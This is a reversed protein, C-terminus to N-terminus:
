RCGSTAISWPSVSLTTLDGDSPRHYAGRLGSVFNPEYSVDVWANNTLSGLNSASIEQWTWSSNGGVGDRWSGSLTGTRVDSDWQVGYASSTAPNGIADQYNDTSTASGSETDTYKEVYLRTPRDIQSEADNDQAPDPNGLNDYTVPGGGSGGTGNGGNDSNPIARAQIVATGGPPLYVNTATWANGSM